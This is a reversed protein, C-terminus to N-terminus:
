LEIKYFEISDLLLCKTPAKDSCLKLTLVCQIPKPLSTIKPKGGAIEWGSGGATTSRSPLGGTLETISKITLILSDNMVEYVGNLSITRNLGEYDSPRFEFVNGDLFKYNDL